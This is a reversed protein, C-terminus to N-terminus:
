IHILSLIDSSRYVIVGVAVVAVAIVAAVIRDIRRRRAASLTM